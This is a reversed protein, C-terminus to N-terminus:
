ATQGMIQAKRLLEEFAADLVHRGQQILGGAEAYESSGEMVETTSKFKNVFPELALVALRRAGYGLHHGYSLNVWEGERRATARITSAYASQLQSMLSEHVRGSLTPVTNFQSDM